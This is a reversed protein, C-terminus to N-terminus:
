VSRTRKELADALSGPLSRSSQRLYEAYFRLVEADPGSWAYPFELWRGELGLFPDERKPFLSLQVPTEENEHEM